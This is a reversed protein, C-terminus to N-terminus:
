QAGRPQSVSQYSQQSSKKKKNWGFGFSVGANLAERGFQWEAVVGLNLIGLHVDFGGTISPALQNGEIDYDNVLLGGAITFNTPASGAIYNGGIQLTPSGTAVRELDLGIRGRENKSIYGTGIGLRPTVFYNDLGSNGVWTIVDEGTIGFRFGTNPDKGVHVTSYIDFGIGIGHEEEFSRPFDVDGTGNVTADVVIQHPPLAFRYFSRMRGGFALHVNDKEGVTVYGGPSLFLGADVVSGARALRTKEGFEIRTNNGTGVVDIRPPTRFRAGGLARAYLGFQMSFQKANIVAHGVDILGRTMLTLEDGVVERSTQHVQTAFEEFDQRTDLDFNWETDWLGHLKNYTSFGESLTGYIDINFITIESSTNLANVSPNHTDFNIDVGGMARYPTREFRSNLFPDDGTSTQAYAFGSFALICVVALSTPLHRNM